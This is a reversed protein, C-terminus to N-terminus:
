IEYGVIVEVSSWAGLMEPKPEQQVGRVLRGDEVTEGEIWEEVRFLCLSSELISILGHQQWLSFTCYRSGAMASFGELQM